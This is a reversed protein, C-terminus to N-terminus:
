PDEPRVILSSLAVLAALRGRLEMAKVTHHRALRRLREPDAGRGQQEILLAIESLDRAMAEDAEIGRALMRLLEVLEQRM